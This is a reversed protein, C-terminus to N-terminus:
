YFDDLKELPLDELYSFSSKDSDSRYNRMHYRHKYDKIKKHVWGESVELEEAIEPGTMELFYFCFIIKKILDSEQKLDQILDFDEHRDTHSARYRAYGLLGFGPDDGADTMDMEHYESERIHIRTEPNRGKFHRGFARGYDLVSRRAATWIYNNAKMGKDPNFKNIAKLIAEVIYMHLDEKDEYHRGWRWVCKHAVKLVLEPNNRWMRIDTYDINPGGREDAMIDKLVRKRNREFFRYFDV